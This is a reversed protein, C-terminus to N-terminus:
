AAAKHLDLFLVPADRSRNEETDILTFGYREYFRVSEKKADVVVFRCGVAPCIESRAIGVTLDLLKTGLRLDRGRYDADVLLRAVKVAPYNKYPFSVEGHLLRLESVVESCTLTIYAALRDAGVDVVVYTRALNAAEFKRASRKAFRKLPAFAEDGYQLSSFREGDRM